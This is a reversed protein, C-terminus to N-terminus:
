RHVQKALEWYGDLEALPLTGLEKGDAAIAAELHQFRAMFKRNTRELSEDPNIGTFRAYNILAFLVDGFEDAARPSGSAEEHQFEALEEEVKAWVQAANEFEFGVGRVKDQIRYAKVLAPLSVPVGALVSRAGEQLKLREWNAKVADEDDATVDGYIHPHRAVLKDCIGHLADAIDWGGEAAPRESAIRAYFVMHLLLDGTEKRVEAADGALIADALEYTEEITLHRLTEFTQKRDWPCQERLEDMTDLLRGFAALKEDRTHM